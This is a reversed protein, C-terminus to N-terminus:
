TRQSLQIRPQTGGPLQAGFPAKKGLSFFKGWIKDEYHNKIIDEVTQEIDLHELNKYVCYAKASMGTAGKCRHEKPLNKYMIDVIEKAETTKDYLGYLFRGAKSPPIRHKKEKEGRGPPLNNHYDMVPPVHGPPIRRGGPKPNIYVSLAPDAYPPVYPRPYSEYPKDEDYPDPRDIIQVAPPPPALVPIPLRIAPRGQVWPVVTPNSLKRPRTWIEDLHMRETCLGMWPVSQGISIADVFWPVSMDSGYPGSYQGLPQLPTGCLSATSVQQWHAPPACNTNLVLQGCKKTWGSMDYGGAEESQWEGFPRNWDLSYALDFAMDAMRIYPNMRAVRRGLHALQRRHKYMWMEESMSMHAPRPPILPVSRGPRFRQYDTKGHRQELFKPNRGPGPERLDGHGPRELPRQFPYPSPPGYRIPNRLEIRNKSKQSFYTAM